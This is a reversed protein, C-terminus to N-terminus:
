SGLLSQENVQSVYRAVHKNHKLEASPLSLLYRHRRSNKKREELSFWTYCGVVIALFLINAIYAYNLTSTLRNIRKNSQEIIRGQILQFIRFQYFFLTDLTGMTLPFAAGGRVASYAEQLLRQSYAMTALVGSSSINSQSKVCHEYQEPLLM